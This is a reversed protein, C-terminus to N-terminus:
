IKYAIEGEVYRRVWNRASYRYSHRGDHGHGCHETSDPLSHGLHAVDGEQVDPHDHAKDEGVEVHKLEDKYHVKM